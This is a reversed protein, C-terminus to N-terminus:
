TITVNYLQCYKGLAERNPVQLSQQMAATFRGPHQQSLQSLMLTLVQRADKTEKLPDDEKKGAHYLQAFSVSYGPIEEFDDDPVDGMDEQTREEEPKVLLTLAADLLRSWVQLAADSQLQPYETLLKAAAVACLKTEIEGTIMPLTSVCVSDVLQPFIGAQVRDISQVVTAVGHKVVFLSLFILLSKTFKPTRSNQLRYFLLTWITHIFPSLIEPTLNEFVTNLIFFGHHDSHKNAILKQFVGLVAPLQNGAVIEQAAKQLYAQLLRVLAPVNAGREWLQPMVLAGFVSM